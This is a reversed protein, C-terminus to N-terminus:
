ELVIGHIVLDKVHEGDRIKARDLLDERLNQFGSPGDLQVMTLTKVYATIDETIQAGLKEAGEPMNEILVTAEIRLWADKPEALNAVIPTLPILKSLPPVAAKAEEAKPEEHPKDLAPAQFKSHLFFGFGAGVGAALLTVVLVGVIGGGSKKPKGDEKKADAAM